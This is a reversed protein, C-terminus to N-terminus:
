CFGLFASYVIRWDGSFIHSDRFLTQHRCWDRGLTFRPEIAFIHSASFYHLPSNAGGVERRYAKSVIKWGDTLKMAVLYDAFLHPPLRLRIKIMGTKEDSRDITVIFNDRPYGQAKASPRKEVRKLWEVLSLTQLQGKESWRLDCTPDFIV